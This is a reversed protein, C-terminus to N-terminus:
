GRFDDRVLVWAIVTGFVANIAVIVLSWFLTIRLAAVAQPDSIARWFADVGGELSRAVVASLPLLVIVSLYGTVVGVSLGGGVRNRRGAPAVSTAAASTMSLRALRGSSTPWREPSVTSSSSRCTRGAASTPSRSCRRRRRTSRRTSLTTSSRGTGRRPSSASHM